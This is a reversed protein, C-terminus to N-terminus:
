KYYRFHEEFAKLLGSLGRATQYFNSETGAYDIFGVRNEFVEEGLADKLLGPGIRAFVDRKEEVYDPFMMLIGAKDGDNFLQFRIAEDTVAADLSATAPEAAQQIIASGHTIVQWHPMAPAAKCLAEVIETYRSDGGDSIFLQRRGDRVSMAIEIQPGPCYQDIADRIM